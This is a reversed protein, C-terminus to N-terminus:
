LFCFKLQNRTITIIWGHKQGERCTMGNKFCSLSNFFNRLILFCHSRAGCMSQVRACQLWVECSVSYISLFSVLVMFVPSSVVNPTFDLRVM